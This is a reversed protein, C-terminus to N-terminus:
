INKQLFSDATEKFGEELSQPPTWGLTKKTHEIDVHLSGLLRNVVSQKGLVWGMFRYAFLPIPLTRHPKGLAKAMQETLTFTSVDHDDSVLFIQNTAQPHDICTIILDCLNKVSVLSRKNNKICGFPTPLGKSVFSLLSAFNAKVGPGYILTPRIIVVELGTDKSLQMLELEAESKSKGYFDDPACVDNSTFPKDSSTAEGNVKISSIFIFRKVGAEVAQRAFNLTGLTNVDRFEQLPDSSSENMIHVRAASHIICDVSDFCGSYNTSVNINKKFFQHNSPFSLDNRGVLTLDFGGNLQRILNSALFGNAGTILLKM